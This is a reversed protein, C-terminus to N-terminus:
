GDACPLNPVIHQYCSALRELSQFDGCSSVCLVRSLLEMGVTTGGTTDNDVHMYVVNM